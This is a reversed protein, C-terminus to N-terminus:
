EINLDYYFWPAKITTYMAGCRLIIQDIVCIEWDSLQSPNRPQKTVFLLFSKGMKLKHM